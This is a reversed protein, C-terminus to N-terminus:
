RAIALGPIGGRLSSKLRTLSALTGIIESISSAKLSLKFGKIAM